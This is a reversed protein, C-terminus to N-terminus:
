PEGRRVRLVARASETLGYRWQGGAYELVGRWVGSKQWGHMEKGPCEHSLTGEFGGCVTCWGLGGDCFMCGPSQCKCEFYSHKRAYAM